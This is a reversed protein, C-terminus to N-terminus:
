GRHPEPVITEASRRTKPHRGDQPASRGRNWVVNWDLLNGETPEIGYRRVYVHLGICRRAETQHPNGTRLRFTRAFPLPGRCAM